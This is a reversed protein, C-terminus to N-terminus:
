KNRNLHAVRKAYYRKRNDIERVTLDIPSINIAEVKLLSATTILQM